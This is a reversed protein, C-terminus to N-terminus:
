NYSLHELPIQWSYSLMGSPTRGQAVCDTNSTVRCILHLSIWNDYRKFRAAKLSQLIQAWFLKGSQLYFSLHENAELTQHWPGSSQDFLPTGLLLCPFWYQQSTIVDYKDRVLVASSCDQRIKGLVFNTILRNKGTPFLAAWWFNSTDGVWTVCAGFLHRTGM